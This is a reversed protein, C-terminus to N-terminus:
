SAGAPAARGAPRGRPRGRGRAGAARGQAPRRASPGGRRGVAPVPGRGGDAADGGAGTGGAGRHPERAGDLPGPGARGRHAPGRERRRGRDGARVRAGGARRAEVGVDRPGGDRRAEPRRPRDVRVPRPRGDHAGRPVVNTARPEDALTFTGEIPPLARAVGDETVTRRLRDGDRVVEILRVRGDEVEVLRASRLAHPPTGDFTREETKRVDSSHSGARLRLRAANGAVFTADRGEGARHLSERAWGIRAGGLFLGMWEVRDPSLDRPDPDVRFTAADDGADDADGAGASPVGLVRRDGGGGGGRAGRGGWRRGVTRAVTRGM